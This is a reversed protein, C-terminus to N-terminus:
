IRVGVEVFVYYILIMGQICQVIVISYTWNVLHKIRSFYPWALECSGRYIKLIEAFIIGFVSKNLFM